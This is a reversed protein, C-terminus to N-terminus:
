VHSVREQTVSWLSDPDPNTVVDAVRGDRLIVARHAQAAAQLDHTVLLVASGAAALSLLSNLVITGNKSDLAGTPEDAFVISPQDYLVRAVAARQQEGGSLESTRQGLQRGLGLQGLLSAARPKDIQRGAFRAPLTVNDILPLAPVLNFSQFVFGVGSRHLAAIKTQSASTIDEGLLHVSGGTAPTFGALTHLLTSKGSGSPGVVSVIEGPRVSLNVDRLVLQQPGKSDQAHTVDLHQCRSVVPPKVNFNPPTFM